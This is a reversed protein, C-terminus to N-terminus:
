GRISQQPGTGSPAYDPDSTIVVKDLVIGADLMHVGITHRGASVPTGSPTVLHWRYSNDAPVHEDNSVTAGDISIRLEDDSAGTARARVWVYHKGTKTFECPFDMRAPITSAGSGGSLPSMAGDGDYGSPSTVTTWSHDHSPTKTRYAEAEMVLLGPGGRDQFFDGELSPSYGGYSTITIRDLVYSDKAMWVNLTHNGPTVDITALAGGDSTVRAWKFTMEPTQINDSTSLNPGQGDLGVHVTNAGTSEGSRARLWVYHTGSKVFEVPYNLQPSSSAYTGAAYSTNTEPAAVVAGDGLYGDYAHTLEWSHGGRDIKESYNEAEIKLLGDSGGDQVYRAYPVKVFNFNTDALPVTFSVSREGPAVSGVTGFAAVPTGVPVTSHVTLTVASPPAERHWNSVAVVLGSSSELLNAEVQHDSSTVRATPGLPALISQMLTRYSAHFSPPPGGTWNANRSQAGSRAYGLGHFFNSLVVRGAGVPWTQVAPADDSAFTVLVKTGPADSEFHQTAVVSALAPNGYDLPDVDTLRTLNRDQLNDGSYVSTLASRGGTLGLDDDFQAPANLENYTASGLGLYLFGGAHVWDAVAGLVDSRVHSGILFLGDYASLRGAAVEDEAVVDVKYGLHNLLLWLHMREKGHVQFLATEPTWIDTTIPYLLALRTRAVRAGVLYDEALAVGRTLDFIPKQLDFKHSYTDPTFPAFFPGYNYLNLTQAGHGIETVAKPAVDWPTTNSITSYFGMPYKGPRCAARLVDAAYGALQDTLSSNLHDETLGFTLGHSTSDKRLMAFWDLEGGWLMNGRFTVGERFNVTTRPSKPSTYGSAVDTVRGFFRAVSRSIFLRTEYYARADEPDDTPAVDDLSSVGFETPVRGREALFDHFAEACVNCNLFHARNKPVLSVEDKLTIYAHDVNEIGVTLAELRNWLEARTDEEERISNFCVSASTPGGADPGPAPVIPDGPGLHKDDFIDGGYMLSPHTMGASVFQSEMHNQAGNFGLRRVAAFTNEQTVESFFDPSLGSFIGSVIPFSAPAGADAPNTAEAHEREMASWEVDSKVGHHENEVSPELHNQDIILSMMSGTAPNDLDFTGLLGTMSPTTSVTATFEGHELPVNPNTVPVATLEVRNQGFLGLIPSLNVWPSDVEPALYQAMDDIGSDLGTANLNWKQQTFDQGQPRAVKVRIVNNASPNHMRIKLFLPPVYDTDTPTASSLDTTVVFYDIFRGGEDLHPVSAGRVRLETSLGETVSVDFSAWKATGRPGNPETTDFTATQESQGAQLVGLTFPGAQGAVDAYRVWIRWTDSTVPTPLAYSANSNLDAGHGRLVKGGLTGLLWQTPVYTDDVWWDTSVAVTMDEAQFRAVDSAPNLSRQLVVGADEVRPAPGESVCSLACVAAALCSLGVRGDEFGNM